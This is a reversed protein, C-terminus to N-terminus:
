YDLLRSLLAVCAAAARPESDTNGVIHLIGLTKFSDGLYIRKIYDDTYQPKKRFFYNEFEKVIYDKSCPSKNLASLFEHVV